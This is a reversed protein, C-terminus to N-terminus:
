HLERGKGEGSGPCKLFGIDEEWDGGFEFTAFSSANVPHGSGHGMVTIQLLVPEAYWLFFFESFGLKVTHKASRNRIDEFCSASM